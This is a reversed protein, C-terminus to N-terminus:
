PQTETSQTFPTGLAEALQSLTRRSPVSRTGVFERLHRGSLGAAKATAKTGRENVFHRLEGARKSTTSARAANPTSVSAIPANTADLGQFEADQAGDGVALDPLDGPREPLNFRPALFM